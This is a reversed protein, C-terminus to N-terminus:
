SYSCEQSVLVEWAPNPQPLSAVAKARSVSPAWFTRTGSQERTGTGQSSRATGEKSLLSLPTEGRFKTTFASRLSWIEGPLNQMQYGHSVRLEPCLHLKNYLWILTNMGQAVKKKINKDKSIFKFFILIYIDMHYQISIFCFM